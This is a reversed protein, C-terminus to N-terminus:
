AESFSDCSDIYAALSRRRSSPLSWQQRSSCSAFLVTYRLRIPECLLSHFLGICTVFRTPSGLIANPVFSSIFWNLQNLNEFKQHRSIEHSRIMLSGADDHFTKATLHTKLIVCHSKSINLPRLYPMLSIFTDQFTNIQKKSCCKIVNMVHYLPPCTKYLTYRAKMSPEMYSLLWVVYRHYGEPM